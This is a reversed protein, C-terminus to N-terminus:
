EIPKVIVYRDRSEGTSETEVDPRISLETHVLMREYANMPPLAVSEGTATTKRAAARALKIILAEREKRYHNVDVIVPNQELKKAILRAIRDINLVLIPLNEQSVARDNIVVSIRRSSDDSEVSFDNFGMLEIMKNIKTQLEQM